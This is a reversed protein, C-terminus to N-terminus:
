IGGGCGIEPVASKGPAIQPTGTNLLDIPAPDDPTAIGKMLRWHGCRQLGQLSHEGTETRGDFSTLSPTKM